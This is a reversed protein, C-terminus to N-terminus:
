TFVCEPQSINEKIVLRKDDITSVLERESPSVSLSELVLGSQPLALYAPESLWQILNPKLGNNILDGNNLDAFLWRYAGREMEFIRMKEAESSYFNTIAAKIDNCRVVWTLLSPENSLKALVTPNDLGFWRPQSPEAKPDTAILEIYSESDIAGLANHTAVKIHKGGASLKGAYHQEFNQTGAALDNCGFVLHDLELRM